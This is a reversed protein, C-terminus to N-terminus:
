FQFIQQGQKGTVELLVLPDIMPLITMLDKLFFPGAPHVQDSRSFFVCSGM